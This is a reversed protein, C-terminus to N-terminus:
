SSLKKHGINLWQEETYSVRRTIRSIRSYISKLKQRLISPLKKLAASLKKYFNQLAPTSIQFRALLWRENVLYLEIVM